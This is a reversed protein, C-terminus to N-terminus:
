CLLKFQLAVTSVEAIESMVHVVSENLHYISIKGYFYRFVILVPM